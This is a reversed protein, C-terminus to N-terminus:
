TVNIVHGENLKYDRLMDRSMYFHVYLPVHLFTCIFPVYQCCKGVCEM